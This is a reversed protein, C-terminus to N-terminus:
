RLEVGVFDEYLDFEGETDFRLITVFLGIRVLKAFCDLSDAEFNSRLDGV